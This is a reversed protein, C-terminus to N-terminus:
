GSQGMFNSEKQESLKKMNRRRCSKCKFHRMEGAEHETCDALAIVCRALGAPKCQLTM